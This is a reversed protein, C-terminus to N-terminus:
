GNPSSEASSVARQHPCGSWIEQPFIISETGPINPVGIRTNLDIGVGLYAKYALQSCYFAADTSSDPFNVNYPKGIQKMCYDAVDERKSVCQAESLGKGELPYAAGYIEDILMGRQGTMGESDWVTGTLEFAIVMGKAGAEVCRGGPGVYIVIHDVDGPILKGILRWFQGKIDGNGGDTTCILDGTQIALGNIQYQYIM